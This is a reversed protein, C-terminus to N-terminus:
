GGGIGTTDTGGTDDRGISDAGTDFYSAGGDYVVSVAKGMARNCTWVKPM